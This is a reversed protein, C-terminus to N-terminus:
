HGQIEMSPNKMILHIDFSEAQGSMLLIDEMELSLIASIIRVVNNEQEKL